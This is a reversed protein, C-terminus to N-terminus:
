WTPWLDQQEGWYKALEAIDEFDITDDGYLNNAPDSQLWSNVLVDLDANDISCDPVLDAHGPWDPLEPLYCEAPYLRIDDIYVTGSGSITPGGKNGFGIYMKQVDDRDVGTFDNLDIRWQTWYPIHTANPEDHYIIADSGSDELVVYMSEGENSIIGIDNSDWDGSITGTTTVHDIVATCMAIDNNSTLCLGIYWDGFTTVKARGIEQWPLVPTGDDDEAHEAMFNEGGGIDYNGYNLKVWHPAVNGDIITNVTEGALTDRFQFSVGNEPTLVVAANQSDPELTYRIMV